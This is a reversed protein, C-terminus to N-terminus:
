MGKLNVLVHFRFHRSHKTVSGLNKDGDCTVWNGVFVPDKKEDEGALLDLAIDLVLPQLVHEKPLVHM